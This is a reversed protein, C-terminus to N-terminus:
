PSDMAYPKKGRFQQTALPQTSISEDLAPTTIPPPIHNDTSLCWPHELVQTITLRKEVDRNLIHKILDISDESLIYPIRLDRDM